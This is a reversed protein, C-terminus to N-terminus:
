FCFFSYISKNSLSVWKGPDPDNSGLRNSILAGTPVEKSVVARQTQKDVMQAMPVPSQHKVHGTKALPHRKTSCYISNVTREPYLEPSGSRRRQFELHRKHQLMDKILRTDVDRTPSRCSTTNNRGRLQQYKEARKEEKQDFDKVPSNSTPSLDLSELSAM